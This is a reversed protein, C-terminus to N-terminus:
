EVILGLRRLEGVLLEHTEEEGLAPVHIVATPGQDAITQYGTSVGDVNNSDAEYTHRFLFVLDASLPAWIAETLTRFTREDIGLGVEGRGYWGYALTSWWWRDLVLAGSKAKRVLTPVSESHCALHALQRALPDTPRTDQAELLAYVGGTFGSFGSPMHVFTTSAPDVVQRMRSLQTSKGAKDLGEFVVVSGQALVLPNPSM